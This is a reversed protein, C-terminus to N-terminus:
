RRSPHRRAVALGSLGVLLLLATHPEPIPSASYSMADYYFGNHSPIDGGADAFKISNGYAPTHGHDVRWPNPWSNGTYVLSGNVSYEYVDNLPDADFVAVVSVEHWTSRDLNVALSETVFGTTYDYTFLHLGDGAFDNKLNINFGTRDNGAETGIYINQASGDGSSSGAKFHISFEFRNGPTAVSDLTPSFPTGAGASGYGRAYHWSNSGTFSETDVVQDDGPDNNTCGLHAGGSWGQQGGSAPCLPALTYGEASEFGITEAFGSSTAFFSALLFFFLFQRM